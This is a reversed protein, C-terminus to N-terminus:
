KGGVEFAPVANSFPINMVRLTQKGRLTLETIFQFQERSEAVYVKLKYHTGWPKDQAVVSVKSEPKRLPSTRGIEELCSQVAMGDHDPNLYFDVVCLLSRSGSTANSIRKSWFRYHPIMVLNDEPTVLYVARLGILKVEGYTGDLEIWDGPQYANELITVLGAFLSSAYDKLVFAVVLSVSALLTVVNQLSPEVIIPVVVVAAAFGVVLRALPVIRLVSLRLRPHVMEAVHRLAWRISTATLWTIALVAAILLMDMYGLKRLLELHDVSNYM